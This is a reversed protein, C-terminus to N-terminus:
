SLMLTSEPQTLETFQVAPNDEILKLPAYWCMIMEDDTEPHQKTVRELLAYIAPELEMTKCFEVSDTLWDIDEENSIRQYCEQYLAKWKDTEHYHEWRSQPLRKALGLQYREVLFDMAEESNLDKQSVWCVNFHEIVQKATAYGDNEIPINSLIANMEPMYGTEHIINGVVAWLGKNSLQGGNSELAVITKLFNLTKEPEYHQVYRTIDGIHRSVFAISLGYDFHNKEKLMHLVNDLQTINQCNRVVPVLSLELITNLM